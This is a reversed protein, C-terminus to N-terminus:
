LWLCVLLIGSCWGLGSLLRSLRAYRGASEETLGRLREESVSLLKNQGSLSSRGLGRGLELLVAMDAALLHWGSGQRYLLEEWSETLRGGDARLKEALETFFEAAVGEAEAALNECVRPLPAGGYTIERSLLRVAALWSLLERERQRLALRLSYFAGVTAAMVLGAGLGMMM